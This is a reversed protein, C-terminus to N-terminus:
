FLCIEKMLIKDKRRGNIYRNQLPRHIKKHQRNFKELIYYCLAALSPSVCYLILKVKTNGHVTHGGDLYLM